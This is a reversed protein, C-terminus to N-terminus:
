MCVGCIRWPYRDARFTLPIHACTWFGSALFRLLHDEVLEFTQALVAVGAILGEERPENLAGM